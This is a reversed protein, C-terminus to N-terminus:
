IQVLLCVAFTVVIIFITNFITLTLLTQSTIYVRRTSAATMRTAVFQIATADEPFVRINFDMSYKMGVSVRTM